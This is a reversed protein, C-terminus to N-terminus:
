FDEYDNFYGHCQDHSCEGYTRGCVDCEIEDPDIDSLKERQQERFIAALEECDDDCDIKHCIRCASLTTPFKKMDDESNNIVVLLAHAIVSGTNVAIGNCMGGRTSGIM